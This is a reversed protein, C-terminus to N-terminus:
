SPHLKLERWLFPGTEQGVLKLFLLPGVPCPSIQFVVLSVVQFIARAKNINAPGVYCLFFFNFPSIAKVGAWVM